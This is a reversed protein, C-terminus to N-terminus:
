LMQSLLINIFFAVDTMRARSIAIPQRLKEPQPPGLPIRKTVTLSSLSFSSRGTSTEVSCQMSRSDLTRLPSLTHMITEPPSPSSIMGSSSPPAGTVQTTPEFSISPSRIVEIVKGSETLYISFTPLLVLLSLATSPLPSLAFIYLLKLSQLPSSAKSRVFRFTMSSEKLPEPKCFSVRSEFFCLSPM